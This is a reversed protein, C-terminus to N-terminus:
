KANPPEDDGVTLLPRGDLTTAGTPAYLADEIASNLTREAAKVRQGGAYTGDHEEWATNYAELARRVAPFQALRDKLKKFDPHLTM